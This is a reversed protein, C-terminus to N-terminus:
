VKTDEKVVPTKADVKSEVKPIPKAGVPIYEASILVEGSKCEQLKIWQNVMSKSAIIQQLSVKAFGMKDDKGIIDEDFVEIIVEEPSDKLIDLSVDYNWEPHQNNDITPSKSAQKGLTVKTYPDAKGFMGKKQLDKARVVILHISGEPLSIKEQPEDVKVPASKEEKTEKKVPEPAKEVKSAEKIIPSKTDAKLEEKPVPKAGSPIYEASILVEGSKCQELKIWENVMTKAAVLQPINLKALGLKDDKGVIDKDFVEVTIEEPSDKLIDLIVDYNWEPNQNNDITQSKSTQKGLSIKAYPDAKGLMGKKELNRAKKVTLQISGEPLTIKDESKVVTADPEEQKTEKVVPEPAKMVKADETKVSPQTDGM